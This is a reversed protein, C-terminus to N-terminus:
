STEESADFITGPNLIGQPDFVAKIRRMLGLKVPDELEAVYAKKETGIGHEGSIAGGLAMGAAFIDHILDHRVAADKQFVSLHVNGDGAHGCGAIWSGTDAAIAAVRDMFDPLSARPVVVDVIDDANNAKAVWFSKERADILSAAAGGPLVYVDLAGLDALQEALAAVDEELRTDSMQEMM